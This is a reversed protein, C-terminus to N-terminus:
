VGPYASQRTSAPPLELEAYLPEDPSANVISFGFKEFLHKLNDNEPLFAARLLGLGESKAVNILKQLLQGGIGRHQWHDSVVIAFRARDSFSSKQMQTLGAITKTGDRNHVVAVLAMERAYDIFCARRLRTHDTRENVSRSEFYWSRVSSESLDQHFQVM